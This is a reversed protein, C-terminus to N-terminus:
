AASALRRLTEATAADAPLFAEIAIESLTIDVPTGFVTTMSILSLMEGGVALRLPVVIDHYERAALPRDFKNGDATPYDSIEDLLGALVPDGTLDIQRRLRALLHTRWESFNAIRPALGAPHLGVRLANVPSRLLDPEVGRASASVRQQSRRDDL